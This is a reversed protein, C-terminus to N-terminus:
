PKLMKARNKKLNEMEGVVELVETYINWVDDYTTYILSYWKIKMSSYFGPSIEMNRPLFRKRKKRDISRVLRLIRKSTAGDVKSSLDRLEIVCKSFEIKISHKSTEYDNLCQLMLATNTNLKKLHDNIRSDFSYSRKLKAIASRAFYNLIVSVVSGIFGVIGLANAWAELRPNIFLENIIEM